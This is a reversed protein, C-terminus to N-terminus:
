IRCSRMCLRCAALAFSCACRSFFMHETRCLGIGEAGQKCAAEADDPSDANALVRLVRREDVWRCKGAVALMCVLTLSRPQSHFSSLSHTEFTPKGLPRCKVQSASTATAHAICTCACMYLGTAM